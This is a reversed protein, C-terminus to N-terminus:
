SMHVCTIVRDNEAKGVHLAIKKFCRGIITIRDQDDYIECGNFFPALVLQQGNM